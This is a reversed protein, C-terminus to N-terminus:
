LFPRLVVLFLCAGGHCTETLTWNVFKNTKIALNTYHPVDDLIISWCWWGAVVVEILCLMYSSLKLSEISANQRTTVMTMLALIAIFSAGFIMSTVYQPLDAGELNNAFTSTNYILRFFYTLAVFFLAAKYGTGLNVVAHNEDYEKQVQPDQFNGLVDRDYRSVETLVNEDNAISTAELGVALLRNMSVGTTSTGRENRGTVNRETEVDALDVATHVFHKNTTDTM